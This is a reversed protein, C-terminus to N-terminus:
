LNSFFLIPSTKGLPVRLWFISTLIWFFIPTWGLGCLRSSSSLLISVSASLKTPFVKVMPSSAHTLPSSFPKGRPALTDRSTDVVVICSPFYIVRIWFCILFIFYTLKNSTQPSWNCLKFAIHTKSQWWLGWQCASGASNCQLRDCYLAFIISTLHTNYM